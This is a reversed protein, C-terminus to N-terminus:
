KPNETPVVEYRSKTKPSQRVVGDSVMREMTRSAGVYGLGFARQLRSITMYGDVRTMRVANDYFFDAHKDNNM